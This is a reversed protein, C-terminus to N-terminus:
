LPAGAQGPQEGRYQVTMMTIDDYQPVGLAFSAIAAMLGQVMEEMPRERLAALHKRLREESFLEDKDNM